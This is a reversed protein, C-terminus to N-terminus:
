AHAAVVNVEVGHEVFAKAAIIVQNFGGTSDLAREVIADDDGSFGTEEITLITGGDDAAEFTWTVQTYSGDLGQWEIVILEPERCERVNVDFAFADEANGLYWTVPEGAQLGDDRRTFWFQSMQEADAFAACVDAPPKRIKTRARASLTKSNM